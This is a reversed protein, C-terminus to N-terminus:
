TKKTRKQARIANLFSGRVGAIYDNGQTYKESM